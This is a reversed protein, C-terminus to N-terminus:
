RPLENFLETTLAALDEKFSNLTVFKIMDRENKKGHRNLIPQIGTDLQAM